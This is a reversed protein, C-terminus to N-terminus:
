SEDVVCTPLPQQVCHDHRHKITNYENTFGECPLWVLPFGTRARATAERSGDLNKGQNEVPADDGVHNRYM